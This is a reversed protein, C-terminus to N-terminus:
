KEKLGLDRRIMGIIFWFNRYFVYISHPIGRFIISKFPSIMRRIYERIKNSDPYGEVYRYGAWLASRKLENWGKDHIATSPVFLVKLGKIMIHNGLDLDEYCNVGYSPIWDKVFETKILCNNTNFREGYKLEKLGIADYSYKNMWGFGEGKTTGWVAGVDNKLMYYYLSEYWNSDIKIDDDIFAFLRTTVRSICVQRAYGVPKVTEIILKNIPINELGRPLKGDRTVICVDIKEMSM